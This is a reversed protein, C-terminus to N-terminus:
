KKKSKKLTKKKVVKKHVVRKKEKDNKIVKKDLKKVDKGKIMKIKYCDIVFYVKLVFLLYICIAFFLTVFTSINMKFILFSLYGIMNLIYYSISCGLVFLVVPLFVVNFIFNFDKKFLKVSERLSNIIKKRKFVLYYEASFLFFHLVLVLLFSIFSAVLFFINYLKDSQVFVSSLVFILYVIFIVVSMLFRKAVVVGLYKLYGKFNIKKKDLGMFSIKYYISFDFFLIAVLIFAIKVALSKFLIALGIIFVFFLIDLLFPYLKRLEFGKKLDKFVNYYDIEM